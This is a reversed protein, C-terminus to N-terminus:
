AKKVRQNQDITWKGIVERLAERKVPKPTYDNMGADLCRKRDERMAHATVGIIPISVGLDNQIKLIEGTAEVGDMEPMSMDMLVIDPQEETFKEVAILGNSVLDVDCKLEELMAKIVMQNVINDEAVLVKLPRGDETFPCLSPKSEALKATKSRLTAVAGDNVATLISDFLMSSRAPKVLYASFLDGMLGGPDGKRGASTLLILPTAAIAQDSKITQALEVGDAGPMQYDLIALAYPTNASAAKRLLDLAEDANEALDSKLGWSGLQEKLITRNLENDDVVLAYMGDFSNKTQPRHKTMSEDVALPVHICFTSGKGVTSEAVINGGMAEIMRKSIALGLGAGNHKRASSGDVQEFEEFIADLKSQPIGCGTDSVSIKLDCIEGRRHGSVDIVIHGKETFKVANGLLNTVVQRLRGPDGIYVRDLGPHFRVLLELNKEEVPLSLLTAVDEVCERLNFSERLLRLKGAELRSFDLIDNIIKLLADGSSVIVKAMDAQKPTLDSNLLLSAMGIVGNMPTRIEHSMNALFESKARNASEAAEKSESLEESLARLEDERQQAETIDRYTVVYGGDPRRRTSEEIIIGNGQRRTARFEDGQDLAEACSELYDEVTEYDYMSNRIGYALLDRVSVGIDWHEPTSEAMQWAKENRAIVCFNEDLVLLGQAMSELVERLLESKEKIDQTRQRVTEELNSNIEELKTLARAAAARAEIRETVNRAVGRYGTFNGKADRIPVGASELWYSTEKEPITVKSVVRSFSRKEKLAAQYEDWNDAPEIYTDDAIYSGIFESHDVGLVENARDSIFTVKLDADCEWTWDGASESFDRYRQESERLLREADVQRTVDKSWGIYGTFEGERNYQPLATTSVSIIRGDAAEIDYLFDKLPQENELIETLREDARNALNDGANGARLFNKKIVQDTPIGTVKEFSPSIYILKRESNIEWAWDSASAIYDRFRQKTRAAIDQSRQQHLSLERLANGNRTNYYHMVISATIMMVAITIITSDGTIMMWIAPPVTCIILPISSKRRLAAIAMSTGVGVILALLALLIVGQNDAFRYLYITSVINQACLCYVLSIVSNLTKRKKPADMSDIDLFAWRYAGFAVVAILLGICTIVFVPAEQVFRFYVLVCCVAVGIMERPLQQKLERLQRDVVIEPAFQDAASFWREFQRSLRKM